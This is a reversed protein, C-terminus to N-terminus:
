YAFESFKHEKSVIKVEDHFCTFYPLIKPLTARALYGRNICKPILLFKFIVLPEVQWFTFVQWFTVICLRLIIDM